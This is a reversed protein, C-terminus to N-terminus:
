LLWMGLFYSNRVQDPDTLVIIPRGLSQLLLLDHQAWGARITSGQCLFVQPCRIDPTLDRALLLLLLLSPAAAESDCGGCLM